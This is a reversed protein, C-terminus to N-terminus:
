FNYGLSAVAYHLWAFTYVKDVDAGGELTRYGIAALWRDRIRYRLKLSVDEARGQPAALFDADLLLSLRESIRSEGALHVLPVFGINSNAASSNGQTIAVEADRIKGTFGIHWAWRSSRHFRYRYTMRYSNFRYTASVPIGNEFDRGEFRIARDPVGSAEIAFPALLVRLQHKENMAYSLYLRYSGYPGNGLLDSLSFRTGTGDNPIEVDNLTQWVPGGEIEFGFGSADPEEAPASAALVLTAAVSLIFVRVIGNM